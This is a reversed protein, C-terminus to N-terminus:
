KLIECQDAFKKACSIKRYLESSFFVMPYEPVRRSIAEITLSEIYAIKRHSIVWFRAYNDESDRRRCGIHTFFFFFRSAYIEPIWDPNLKTRDLKRWPERRYMLRRVKWGGGFDASFSPFFLDRRFDFFNIVIRILILLDDPGSHLAKSLRKAEDNEIQMVTFIGPNGKICLFVTGPPRQELLKTLRPDVEPVHARRAIRDQFQTAIACCNKKRFHAVNTAIGELTKARDFLRGNSNRSFWAPLTTATSTARVTLRHM